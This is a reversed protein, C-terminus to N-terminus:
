TQRPMRLKQACLSDGYINVAADDTSVSRVVSDPGAVARIKCFSTAEAGTGRYTDINTRNAINWEYASGGDAMKFTSSPPGFQMVLQDVSQGSYKDRLSATVQDQTAACGVLALTFIAIAFQKMLIAGSIDPHLISM